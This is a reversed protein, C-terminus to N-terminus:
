GGDNRVMRSVIPDEFRGDYSAYRTLTLALALTLALTLTLALALTLDYSAYRKGAM